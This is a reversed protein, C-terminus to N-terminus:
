EPPKEIGAQDAMACVQEYFAEETLGLLTSGYLLCHDDTIISGYNIVPIMYVVALVLWDPHAQLVPRLYLVRGTSPNQPDLDPQAFQHSALEGFEFLLRTPYRVCDRDALFADLGPPTLFGHKRRAVDAQAVLHARLSEEGGRGLPDAADTDPSASPENDRPTPDPTSPTM